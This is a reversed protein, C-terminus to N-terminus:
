KAEDSASDNPSELLVIIRKPASALMKLFGFRFFIMENKQCTYFGLKQYKRFRAM